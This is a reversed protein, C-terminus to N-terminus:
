QYLQPDLSPSKVLLGQEPFVPLWYMLAPTLQPKALKAPVKYELLMSLPMKSPKSRSLALLAPAKSVLAEKVGRLKVGLVM